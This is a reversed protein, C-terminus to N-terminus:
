HLTEFWEHHRPQPLGASRLALEAEFGSPLLGSYREMLTATPQNLDARRQLSCQAEPYSAKLISHLARIQALTSELHEANIKYYVYLTRVPLEPSM